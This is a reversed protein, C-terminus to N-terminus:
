EFLVSVMVNENQKVKKAEESEQEQWRSPPKRPKKSMKVESNAEIAHVREIIAAEQSM